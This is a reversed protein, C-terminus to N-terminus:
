SVIYVLVVKFEENVQRHRGLALQSSLCMVGYM